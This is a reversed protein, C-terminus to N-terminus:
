GATVAANETKNLDPRLVVLPTGCRLPGLLLAVSVVQRAQGLLLFSRSFVKGFKRRIDAKSGFAPM